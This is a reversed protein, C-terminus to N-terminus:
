EEAFSIDVLLFSVRKLWYYTDNKFNKKCL